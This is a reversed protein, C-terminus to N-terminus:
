QLTMIGGKLNYLNEFGRKGQETAILNNEQKKNNFRIM